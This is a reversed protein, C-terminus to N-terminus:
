RLTRTLRIQKEQGVLVFLAWICTRVAAFSFGVNKPFRIWQRYKSFNVKWVIFVKSIGSLFFANSIGCCHFQVNSIFINAFFFFKNPLCSRTKTIFYFWGVFGSAMCFNVTCLNVLRIVMPPNGSYRGQCEEVQFGSQTKKQLSHQWRQKGWLLAFSPWLAAATLARFLSYFPVCFFGNEHGNRQKKVCQVSGRGKGNM